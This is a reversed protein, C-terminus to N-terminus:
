MNHNKVFNDLDFKDIEEYIEFQCIPCKDKDSIKIKQKEAEIKASKQMIYYEVETLYYYNTIALLTKDKSANKEKM